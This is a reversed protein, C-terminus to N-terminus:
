GITKITGKHFQFATRINVTTSRINTKITGKHFQFLESCIFYKYFGLKLRVKISNFDDRRETQQFRDHTKITGKHFQFTNPFLSGSNYFLTKITGKHFQFSLIVNGGGDELRKLRVKISNFHELTRRYRQRNQTKITGKHFQFLLVDERFQLLRYTKITGKHFQFIAAPVVLPNPM